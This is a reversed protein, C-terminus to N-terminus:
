PAAAPASTIREQVSSVPGRRTARGESEGAPPLSARQLAIHKLNKNKQKNKGCKHSTLHNWRVAFHELKKSKHMDNDWFRQASKPSM